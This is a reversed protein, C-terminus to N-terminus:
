FFQTILKVVCFSTVIHIDARQHINNQSFFKLSKRDATKNKVESELTQLLM